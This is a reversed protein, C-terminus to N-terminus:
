SSRLWRTLYDTTQSLDLVRLLLGLYWLLLLSHKNIATLASIRVRGGVVAHIHLSFWPAPLFKRTLFFLCVPSVRLPLSPSAPLSSGFVYRSAPAFRHVSFSGSSISWVLVRLTNDFGRSVMLDYWNVEFSNSQHLPDQAHCIM